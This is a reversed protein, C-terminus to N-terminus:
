KRQYWKKKPSGKVPAVPTVPAISPEFEIARWYQLNRANSLYYGIFADAVKQLPEDLLESTYRSHFNIEVGDSIFIKRGIPTNVTAIIAIDGLERDVDTSYLYILAADSRRLIHRISNSAQMAKAMKKSNEDMSAPLDFLQWSLPNEPCIKPVTFSLTGFSLIRVCSPMKVYFLDNAGDFVSGAANAGVAGADDPVPKEKFHGVAFKAQPTELLEKFRGRDGGAALLGCCGYIVRALDNSIVAGQTSMAVRRSINIKKVSSGGPLAGQIASMLVSQQATIEEQMERDEIAMRDM